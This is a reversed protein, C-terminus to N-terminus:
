LKKKRLNTFIELVKHLAEDDSRCDHINYRSPAFHYLSQLTSSVIFTYATDSGLDKYVKKMGTLKVDVFNEYWKDAIDQRNSFPLAPIKGTIKVNIANLRSTGKKELSLLIKCALEMYRPVRDTPDAEQRAAIVASRLPENNMNQKIISVEEQSGVGFLLSIIRFFTSINEDEIERIKKHEWTSLGKYKSLLSVYPYSAFSYMEQKTYLKSKLMQKYEFEGIQKLVM